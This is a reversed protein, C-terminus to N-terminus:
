KKLYTMCVPNKIDNITIGNAYCKNDKCLLCNADCKIDITQSDRQPAYEPTREFLTKTTDIPPKDGKKFQSCVINDTIKIRKAQCTYKYNYECTTKRCRIDM